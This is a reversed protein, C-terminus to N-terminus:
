SLAQSLPIRGMGSYYFGAKLVEDPDFLNRGDFIVPQKLLQYIQQLSIQKFQPWETVLALADAQNLATLASETFFLQKSHASFHVKMAEMALPDYAQITAGAKLLADILVQSSANRIDDTNPKFALGWVAITKGQLDHNFFDEIKRFLVQQQESNRQLVASIVLPEFQHSQALQELGLLDKPFCSGGFGCGANLFAGNIRVDLAMGRKVDQIDAGIREAIQSIENIFSIKTALLANAAYKTLEASRVGMVVFREPANNIFPQYLARMTEVAATSNAGIIIRDPHMCQEVATGEQLFEPNSVVNVPYHYGLQTATETIIREVREATGPPVTSKNIVLCTDHQFQGIMRAVADIHALEVSGDERAPTGVAILHINAYNVALNADCTFQIQQKAQNRHLLPELGEEYIPLIGQKLKDIKNADIDFCLVHHGMEAMCVSTVLGVYGAGYVTLKM